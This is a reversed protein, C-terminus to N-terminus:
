AIMQLPRMQDNAISRKLFLTADLAQTKVHFFRAM